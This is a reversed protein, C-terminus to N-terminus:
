LWVETITMASLDLQAIMRPSGLRALDRHTLRRERGKLTAKLNLLYDVFEKRKEVSVFDSLQRYKAGNGVKFALMHFHVSTM